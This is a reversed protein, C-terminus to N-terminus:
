AEFLEKLFEDVLADCGEPASTAVDRTAALFRHVRDAPLAIDAHTAENPGQKNTRLCMLVMSHDPIYRFKVDGQGVPVLSFAGVSLLEWSFHWVRDEGDSVGFVAQVAFPDTDADYSLAVSVSVYVDTSDIRRLHATFGHSIM